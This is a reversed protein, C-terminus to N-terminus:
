TVLCTINNGSKLSPPQLASLIFLKGLAMWTTVPVAPAWGRGTVVETSKITGRTKM